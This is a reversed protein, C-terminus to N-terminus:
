VPAFKQIRGNLLDSVYVNGQGDVAIVRPSDFQGLGSGTSGWKTLFTGDPAFKQVRDNDGDVVYVNGDADTAVGFPTDL